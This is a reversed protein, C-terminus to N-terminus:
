VLPTPWKLAGNRMLEGLLAPQHEICVLLAGHAIEERSTAPYRFSKLIHIAAEFGAENGHRAFWAGAAAGVAWRVPPAFQEIARVAEEWRSSQLQQWTAAVPARHRLHALLIVVTARQLDATHEVPLADLVRQASTVNNLWESVTPSKPLSSLSFEAAQGSGPESSRAM